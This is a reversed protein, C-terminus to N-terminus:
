LQSRQAKNLMKRFECRKVYRLAMQTVEGTFEAWVYGKCDKFFSMYKGSKKKHNQLPKKPYQVWQQNQLTLHRWAPVRQNVRDTVSKTSPFDKMRM